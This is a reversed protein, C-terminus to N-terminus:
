TSRITSGPIRPNNPDALRMAGTVLVTGNELLTTIQALADAERTLFFPFPSEPWILHTPRTAGPSLGNAARNSLAIYRQM